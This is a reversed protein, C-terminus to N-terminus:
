SLANVDGIHQQQGTLLTAFIDTALALICLAATARIYDTVLLFIRFLFFFRCSHIM